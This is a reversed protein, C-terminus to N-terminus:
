QTVSWASGSETAPTWGLTPGMARLLMVAPVAGLALDRVRAGPPWSWGALTGVRASRRVIAQTRPRRRRDYGALAADVDGSTALRGTLEVADELAQCAGQGLIPDMVHAADGVLAVRGRVYTPLPPLHYGDHRLVRDPPVAALLAPIPDPWAGFRRRVAAHEGGGPVGAGAGPEGAAVPDRSVGPEGRRPGHAAAFVYCRDGPLATFGIREGRGWFVVGDGPPDALPETIMRWTVYGAPGPAAADPWGQRRVVSRLGDAGVVLDARLLGDRHEVVATRGATRVRRVEHGPRLSEAPLAAVLTGVLEARHVVLLPWGHRREIEANATRILWRGARDRVGGTAEVAGVARVRGALGLWDLARLGNPWLSLGAGVETFDPARELVRVRWGIRHLGVATALGGIGGGVVVATRGAM